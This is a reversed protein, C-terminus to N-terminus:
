GILPVGLWTAIYALIPVLVYLAMTTIGLLMSADNGQAHLLRRVGRQTIVCSHLMGLALLLTLSVKILGIASLMLPTSGYIVVALAARADRQCQSYPALFWILAAALMVIAIQAAYFALGSGAATVLARSRAPGLMPFDLPFVYASVASNMPSGAALPLAQGISIAERDFLGTGLFLALPGIAALTLLYRWMRRLDLPAAGLTDWARAPRLVFNAATRLINDHSPEPDTM